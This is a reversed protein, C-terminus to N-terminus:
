VEAYTETQKLALYKGATNQFTNRGVPKVLYDDCGASIAKEKEGALAYATEAIVPLNKRFKKIEKTAGYGNMQPLQIDMLVLDIDPNKQCLGVNCRTHKFGPTTDDYGLVSGEMQKIRKRVRLLVILYQEDTLYLDKDIM